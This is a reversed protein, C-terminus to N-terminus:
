PEPAGAEAPSIPPVRQAFSEIFLVPMAIPAAAKAEGFVTWNIQMQMPMQM